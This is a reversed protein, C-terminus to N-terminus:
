IRKFWITANTQELDLDDIGVVVWSGASVTASAIATDTSEAAASLYVVDISTITATTWDSTTWEEFAYSVTTSSKSALGVQLVTIGSPYNYADVPFMLVDASVGAIQDPEIFTISKSYKESLPSNNLLIINDVSITDSSIVRAHIDGVVDMTVVPSNTGVGFWGGTLWSNGETDLMVTAIDSKNKINLYIDSDAEEYIYFADKNLANRIAFATTGATSEVYLVDTSINTAYGIDQSVYNNLTDQSVRDNSLADFDLSRLYGSTTADASQISVFIDTTGQIVLPGAVGEVVSSVGAGAGADAEWNAHGLVDDWKIVDNDAPSDIPLLFGNLWIMDSSIVDASLDKLPIGGRAQAFAPSCMGLILLIIFLRKMLTDM